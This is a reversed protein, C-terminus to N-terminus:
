HIAFTTPRRFTRNRLYKDRISKEVRLAGIQLILVVVGFSVFLEGAIATDKVQPITQTTLM